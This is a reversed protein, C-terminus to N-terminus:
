RSLRQNATDNESLIIGVWESPNDDYGKTLSNTIDEGLIKALARVAKMDSELNRVKVRASGEGESDEDDSEKVGKEVALGGFLPAFHKRLLENRVVLLFGCKRGKM